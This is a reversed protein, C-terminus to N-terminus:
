RVSDLFAPFLLNDGGNWEAKPLRFRFMKAVHRFDNPFIFIIKGVGPFNQAAPNAIAARQADSAQVIPRDLSRM